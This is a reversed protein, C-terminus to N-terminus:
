NDSTFEEYAPLQKLALYGVTKLNEEITKHPDALEQLMASAGQVYESDNRHILYPTDGKERHERNAYVEFFVRDDRIEVVRYYEQTNPNILAM